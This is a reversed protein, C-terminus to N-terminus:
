PKTDHTGARDEERTRQGRLSHTARYVRAGLNGRHHPMHPKVERWLQGAAGTTLCPLPVSPYNQKLVLARLPRLAHEGSEGTVQGNHGNTASSAASHADASPASAEDTPAHVFLADENPAVPTQTLLHAAVIDPGNWTWVESPEIKDIHRAYRVERYM